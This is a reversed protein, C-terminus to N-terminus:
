RHQRRRDHARDPRCSFLAFKIRNAPEDTIIEHDEGFTIVHRLEPFGDGDQDARVYWEGFNVGDGVRTAMNRGPNRMQPESTFEAISQSQVYDLLDERKYGMGTLEDIPVVREHGVIRSEKFTRAYRDVRMEEPPVGAVKIIPKAVEYRFAVHDYIAVPPMPPQAGPPPGGPPAGAMGPPPPAGPPPGGMGPPAGGPPGMPPPPPAGPPPGMGPIAGPPGPPPQMQPPPPPAPIPQGIEVLKATPDETLIEQIQQATINTYSKTRVEKQNDTWWKVFGTKVTMADKFAGYLILFGPNDNWFTYNVYNTAQTAMDSDRASRPVFEIPSEHAAFLRILSPLMLMIADRVDTSVFTSRNAADQDNKNYEDYTADRDQVITLDSYPNDDPYLTPLMGYYYKQAYDRSASLVSGEYDRADTIM